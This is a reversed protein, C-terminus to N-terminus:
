LIKKKGESARCPPACSSLVSDYSGFQKNLYLNIILFDNPKFIFNLSESVVSGKWKLEELIQNVTIVLITNKITIVRREQQVTRKGRQHLRRHRRPPTSSVEHPVTAWPPPTERRSPPNWGAQHCWARDHGAAPAPEPRLGLSCMSLHSDASCRSSAECRTHKNLYM